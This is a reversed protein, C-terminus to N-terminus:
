EEDSGVLDAWGSELKDWFGKIKASAEEVSAQAKFSVLNQSVNDWNVVNWWAAVYDPRRNEYNLYYAHEWLDLGVLPFLGESIPNDQNPTTKILANGDSDVCLWAWGSGFLGVAAQTFQEKFGDFSGFSVEILEALQGYPKDGGEPSLSPWFLSHNAHGGGNNRVATRIEQPVSDLEYLLDYVSKKQLDEYGELAKNLKDVYGQHHMRYHVTMTRTDIYPELANFEYTLKPLKYTMIYKEKQQQFYEM